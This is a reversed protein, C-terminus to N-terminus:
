RQVRGLQSVSTSLTEDAAQVVKSQVEFARQVAIMDVMADIASVNSAELQGQEVHAEERPIEQLESEGDRAIRNGGVLRLADDQALRVLKLRGATAGDVTVTGDRDIGFSDGEITIPGGTGLVLDGESTVLRKQGDVSFSGARTYFERGAEDQVVFFGEGIIALDTPRGTQRLPGKRLDVAVTMTVERGPPMALGRRRPLADPPTDDYRRVAGDQAGSELVQTLIQKFGTTDANALNNALVDIRTQQLKMAEEATNLSRLM